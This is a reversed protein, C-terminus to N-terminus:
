IEINKTYISTIECSLFFVVVIVVVVAFSFASLCVSLSFSPCFSLCFVFFARIRQTHKAAILHIKGTGDTQVGQQMKCATPHQQFKQTRKCKAKNYNCLLKYWIQVTVSSIYQMDTDSYTQKIRPAIFKVKTDDSNDEWPWGRLGLPLWDPWSLLRSSLKWNLCLRFLGQTGVRVPGNGFPWAFAPEQNPM